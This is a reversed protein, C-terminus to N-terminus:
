GLLIHIVLCWGCFCFMLWQNKECVLVLLCITHDNDVYVWGSHAWGTVMEASTVDYVYCVFVVFVLEHFSM